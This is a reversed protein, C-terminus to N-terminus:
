GHRYSVEACDRAFAAQQVVAVRDAAGGVPYGDILLHRGAQGAGFGTRSRQFAVELNEVVGEPSAINLQLQLAALDDVDDNDANASSMGLDLRASRHGAEPRISM